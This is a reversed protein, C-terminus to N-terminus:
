GRLVAQEAEQARKLPASARPLIDALRKLHGTDISILISQPAQLFSELTVGYDRLNREVYVDAWHNLYGDDYRPATPMANM